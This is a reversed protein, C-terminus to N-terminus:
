KREAPQQTTGPSAAPSRDRGARREEFRPARELKSQDMTVAVRDGDGDAKVNVDSWPVVVKNEGVGLVGGKGIVAHSVKGSKDIVLSDIEGIDKGQQDRVKAGIIRDSHYADAPMSFAPGAEQRGAPRDAPSTAPRDTSPTSPRQQALADAAALGFVTPVLAVVLLKKM